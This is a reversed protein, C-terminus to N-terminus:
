ACFPLSFAANGHSFKTRHLMTIPTHAAFAIQFIYVGLTGRLEIRIVRLIQVFPPLFQLLHCRTAAQVVFAMARTLRVGSANQVDGDNM